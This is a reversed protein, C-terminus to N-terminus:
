VRAEVRREEEKAERELRAIDDAVQKSNAEENNLQTERKAKREKRRAPVPLVSFSGGPLLPVSCHTLGGLFRNEPTNQLSTWLVVVPM